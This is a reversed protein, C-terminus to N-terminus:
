SHTRAAMNDGLIKTAGTTLVGAMDICDKLSITMGQLVGPWEGEGAARDLEAATRRAEDATVTIMANVIPNWREINALAKRTQATASEGSSPLDATM